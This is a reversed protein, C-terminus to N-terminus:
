IVEPSNTFAEFGVFSQTADGTLDLVDNPTNTVDFAVVEEAIGGNIRTYSEYSPFDDTLGDFLVIATEKLVGSSSDSTVNIRLTGQYDIAPLALDPLYTAHNLASADVTFAYSTVSADDTEYFPNVV